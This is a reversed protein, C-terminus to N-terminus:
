PHYFEGPVVGLELALICCFQLASQDSLTNAWLSTWRAINQLKQTFQSFGLIRVRPYYDSNEIILM